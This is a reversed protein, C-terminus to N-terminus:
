AVVLRSVHVLTMMGENELDAIEPRDGVSIRERYLGIDLGAALGVFQRVRQQKQLM